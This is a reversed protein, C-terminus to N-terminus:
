VVAERNRLTLTASPYIILLLSSALLKLLKLLIVLYLELSMVLAIFGVIFFRDLM